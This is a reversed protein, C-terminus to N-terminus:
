HTETINLRHFRPNTHAQIQHPKKRRSTPSDSIFYPAPQPTATSGAVLGRIVRNKECFKTKHFNEPRAKTALSPLPPPTHSESIFYPAPQPTATSGAVLGRIVRNKECFKTKHFNEPGAKTAPSPLILIKTWM